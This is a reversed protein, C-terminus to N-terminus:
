IKLDKNRWLICIFHLPVYLSRKIRIKRRIEKLQSYCIFILLNPIFLVWLSKDSHEANRQIGEGYGTPVADGGREDKQQFWRRQKSLCTVM